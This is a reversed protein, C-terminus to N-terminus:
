ADRTVSDVLNSAELTAVGSEPVDAAFGDIIGLDLTIRGGLEDVLHRALALHEASTRVIVGVMPGHAPAITAPASTSATAAHAAPMCTVLPLAAILTATARRLHSHRGDMSTGRLAPSHFPKAPLM